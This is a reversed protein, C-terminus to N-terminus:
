FAVSFFTVLVPYLYLILAVLSTSALNLANFYFFSQGVYGFVGMGILGLLIKGRPLPKNEILTIVLLIGGAILYRILLVTIPDAGAAYAM